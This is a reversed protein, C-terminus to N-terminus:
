LKRDLYSKVKEMSMRKRAHAARGQEPHWSNKMLIWLLRNLIENIKMDRVYSDSGAASYLDTMVEVLEEMKRPIFFRSDAASRIVKKYIDPMTHGYFHCWQLTWLDASTAHSYPKRCDIFVCDGSHLANRKGM